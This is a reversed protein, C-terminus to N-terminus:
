HRTAHDLRRGDPPRVLRYHSFRIAVLPGVEESAGRDSRMVTGRCVVEAARDIGKEKPLRLTMELHSRPEAWYEAQFLVGSRSINRTTGEHWDGEGDARYRLPIHLEFRQARSKESGCGVGRADLM